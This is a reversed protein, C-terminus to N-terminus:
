LGRSKLPADTVGAEKWQAERRTLLLDELGHCFRTRALDSEVEACTQFEFTEIEFNSDRFSPDYSQENQRQLHQRNQNV